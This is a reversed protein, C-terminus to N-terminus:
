GPWGPWRGGRLPLGLSKRLKAISSFDIGAGKLAGRFADIARWVGPKGAGGLESYEYAKSFINAVKMVDVGRAALWAANRLLPLAVLDGVEFQAAVGAGTGATYSFSCYDVANPLGFEGNIWNRVYRTGGFTFEDGFGAVYDSVNQLSPTPLCAGFVCIDLGLPDINDIPDDGGYSYPQETRDVAPDVSLFQGTTPDYYRRINYTLGTPDTYNGAYGFPTNNTLGGTTQPNGWADYSATNTLTGSANVSGRVSGLRDTVLYTIAGSTLNVQEIPATGADYIYANNSDMVLQPTSSSTNWLYSQTTASGGTPTTTSGTRLADGDYTAATMNAASNSYSTLEQAGNYASSAVTTGGQSAQLRQGDSDYTYNTTTSALTSSTLESAPDYSGTSANPLTTLKGSADFAYNLTSGGGPTMQTVRNQADYDYGAPSTPTSPTTTESNIAGSPTNSYSLDLQTSSANSLSIDSPTDTPDYTTSITDGSAGLSLSNPLGDATNGIAITHSNFDTIANLEDANDYGYTVTDTTAWTAGAGLPYTIGSTQGDDTYTYTLTQGAGNQSSTLEDFPDYQYTSNGSADSMSLRNGNADYGYSVSHAASGSYSVTALQNLPTYTNTTTVGNPDQRTLQNGVPDYSYTTTQGSPAASTAPRTESVLEGLTDYNYATQYSSATQYPPSNSCSTIGSTNGDPEVSATKDRNPDHCYSTTSAASTGSAKTISTLEDANTYTYTTVQNPAGAGNSAPPETTSTLRGALDYANTTTEHGSQGAPAPTTITTKDGLADYTDTTADSALRTGYGSPYSAPCSSATLSNAAVGAAPVTQTVHGDGDYCTLTKQNDPDTVLTLQDNATYAYNTTKLRPNTVTIQNGDGDYDYTTTRATVGGGTQSVTKSTLEGDANYVNTTTYAAANAGALNGNPATISTPEGDADYGYATTALEGGPNGDPTASSTVDGSSNYGLLTVVADANITACPLSSNPASTGCSDNTSGLTISQGNYLQYTTRSQSASNSGPNYDGTSTWIPNGNTDYESYTVYKPPAASPPTITSSGAPIAAPPSLSACQDAALPLAACTREDFSNYSSSWTAGLANTKATLDGNGNYTSDTENGNPDIVTDDLLTSPDPRYTWTSPSAGGYGATRSVLIRNNYTYQTQNGNPDTVRTSGTGSSNLNSYDFTTQNGAPDTQSTVQGSSNYVNVLADGADPGGPQGNPKTVTLLDHALNTNSNGQDYTYTTVKGRPDTVSVLDGSSCTSSPPSCYGYLWRRALPDTVTTVRGSSDSGVVLSRGSASTVSMCSTATSPCNGSGPAPTNYALSLTAGGPGSEATLQGSSNFTYSTYPAHTIFAYTSSASNYTLSATVSPLACYTGSAGSGVYPYSCAGGTPAKFNVVAGNGQNITVTGSNVSLSMNWNDTWGYGLPGPTGAATQAQALSSDYTRSFTLPPGFSAVKADTSSEWYDGNETNVPRGVSQECACLGPAAANSGGYLWPFPMSGLFDTWFIYRFNLNIPQTGNPCNLGVNETLQFSVDPGAFDSGFTQWGLNGISNLLAAGNGGGQDVSLGFNTFSGLPNTINTSEAQLLYGEAEYTPQNPVSFRYPVWESPELTRGDCSSYEGNAIAPLTIAAPAVPMAPPNSYSGSNVAAAYHTQIQSPKLVNSYVAADDITGKFHGGSFLSRDSSGARMQALTVDPLLSFSSRPQQSVLTGDVYLKMTQGDYTGVVYYWYGPQVPVSYTRSVTNPCGGAGREFVIVGRSKNHTNLYYLGTGDEQPALCGAGGQNKGFLNGLIVGPMTPDTLTEATPNVWAELSYASTGSPYGSAMTTQLTPALTDDRNSSDFDYDYYFPASYRLQSFDLNFQYGGGDPSVDGSAHYSGPIGNASQPPTLTLPNNNGSSDAFTSGSSEGLRWYGAPSDQSIVTTNNAVTQANGDSPLVDLGARDKIQHASTANQSYQVTVSQGSTVPSSLNISVETSGDTTAPVSSVARSTGNVLVTFDGPQPTQGGELPEIFNLTLTAGVVSRATVAITVTNTVNTYPPGSLAAAANGALDQVKNTAPPNYNLRLSDGDHVASALTLTVTSGSISVSSPTQVPGNNVYVTYASAAPPTPNLNLTDSYALSITNGNVTASSLVPTSTNIKAIGAPSQATNGVNDTDQWEYEYCHGNTVSTDSHAVGSTWGSIPAPTGFSGCNGDSGLTSSARLMTSASDNTGSQTDVADTGTVSVSTTSYYGGTMTLASPTAPTTDHVFSISSNLNNSNNDTATINAAAPTGPGTTITYTPSTYTGGSQYNVTGGTDGTWGSTSSVNPFAVHDIGSGSDTPAATFTFTTASSIAGFYYTGTSANFYQLGPNSGKNVTIADGTPPTTDPPVDFDNGLSGHANSGSTTVGTAAVSCGGSTGCLDSYSGISLNSGNAQSTIISWSGSSAPWTNGIAIAGLCLGMNNQPFASASIAPCTVVKSNSTSNLAGLSSAQPITGGTAVGKEVVVEAAGANGSPSWTVTVTAGADSAAARKWFAAQAAATGAANQSGLMSFSGGGGSISPSISSVGSGGVVAAHVVILDGAEAAAPVTVTMGSSGSNKASSRTAIPDITYPVSLGADDLRLQLFQDGGLLAIQWHSGAPTVNKGRRDFVRVPPIELGTLLHTRPDFFGVSGDGGVRAQLPTEL